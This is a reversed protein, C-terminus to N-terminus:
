HDMLIMFQLSAGGCEITSPHGGSLEESGGQSTKPQPKAKDDRDTRLVGQDKALAEPALM